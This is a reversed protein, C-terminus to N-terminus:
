QAAFARILAVAEAYDKKMTEIVAPIDAAERQAEQGPRYAETVTSAEARLRELSLNACVGKMGHSARFIGEADQAAWAAMLQDFSPDGPYRAVFKAIRADTLMRGKVEEYNGGIKEYLEQVTM